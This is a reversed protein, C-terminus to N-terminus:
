RDWSAREEQLYNDVSEATKFIRQGSAEALVQVISRKEEYPPLEEDLLIVRVHRHLRGRYVEPIEIMGNKITTQFEVAYM